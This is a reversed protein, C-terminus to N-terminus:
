FYNCFSIGKAGAGWVYFKNKSLLDKIKESFIM